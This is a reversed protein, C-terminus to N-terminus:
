KTTQGWEPSTFPSTLSVKQILHPVWCAGNGAVDADFNARLHRMHERLTKFVSMNHLKPAPAVSTHEVALVCRM